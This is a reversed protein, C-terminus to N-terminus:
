GYRFPFSVFVHALHRERENLQQRDHQYGHGEDRRVRRCEGPETHSAFRSPNFGPSTIAYRSM